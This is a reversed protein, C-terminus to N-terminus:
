FPILPADKRIYLPHKAAGSKNKGLCMLPKGSMRLISLTKHELEAYRKHVNGSAMVITEAEGALRELTRLNETSCAIAPDAPIDRPSTARWDLVNAKLYRTYGWDRAFTLERHCTPDSAQADAVSPNLGVFLISRAKNGAPTWDRSLWHRYRGCDSFAADGIVDDPLRLRTKGGPDHATDKM